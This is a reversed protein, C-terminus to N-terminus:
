DKLRITRSLDTAGTVTTLIPGDDQLNGHLLALWARTGDTDM